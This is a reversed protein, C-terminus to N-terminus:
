EVQWQNLMKRMWKSVDIKYVENLNNSSLSKAINDFSVVNGKNLLLAESGYAKAISLDHIVSVVSRGKIKVWEAILQFVQKQYILDLHNCPEDLLLIKPDQALVQALFTRQLEGGSLTLVSRDKLHSLGTCELAYDIKYNDDNNKQSFIGKGYSYRGLSVIDMVTYSYNVNHNQMLVGIERALINQKISLINVGNLCIEGEYKLDKSIAKLLTSKGAGNPGVVMLWQNDYLNFNIDNLIRKGNYKVALKKIELM